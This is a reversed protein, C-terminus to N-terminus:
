AAGHRRITACVVRPQCRLQAHSLSPPPPTCSVGDAVAAPLRARSSFLLASSFVL